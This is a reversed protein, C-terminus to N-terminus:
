RSIRQNQSFNSSSKQLDLNANAQRLQRAINDSARQLKSTKRPYDYNIKREAEEQVAPISKM